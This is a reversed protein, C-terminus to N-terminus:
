ITLFKKIFLKGRNLKKKNKWFLNIEFNPLVNAFGILIGQKCTSNTYSTIYTSKSQKYDVIVGVVEGYLFYM